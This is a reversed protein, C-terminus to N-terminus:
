YIATFGEHNYYLPRSQERLSAAQYALLFPPRKMFEREVLVWSSPVPAAPLVIAQKQKKEAQKKAQRRQFRNLKSIPITHIAPYQM